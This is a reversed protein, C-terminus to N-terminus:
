WRAVHTVTMGPEVGLLARRGLASGDGELLVLGDAGLARALRRCLLWPECWPIERRQPDPRTM